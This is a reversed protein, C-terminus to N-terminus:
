PRFSWSVEDPSFDDFTRLGGLRMMEIMQASTKALVDANRILMHDNTVLYDAKVRRCAALVLNDEFDRHVSLYKDALWLDSGDAGVPNALEMMNRMCGLAAEQAAAASSESLVGSAKRAERKFEQALVFLVDKLAHVPYYLEVREPDCMGLFENAAEGEQHWRCYADVMVNTDLMLRAPRKGM